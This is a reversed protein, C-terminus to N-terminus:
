LVCLDNPNRYRYQTPHTQSKSGMYDKTTSCLDDRGYVMAPHIHVVDFTPKEHQIWAEARNLAAVKSAAYAVMPNPYPPPTGALRSDPGFVDDVTEVFGAAIPLLAIVSSTVVVRKVSEVKQASEFVGITGRVAPEIMLKELDGDPLAQFPVPSAMHLIYQVDKVAEDFAGPAVFDPVIVFSLQADKGMAQLVPNSRVANAKAESRVAAKVNYGKELAERLVRFGLFGTAGTLLVTEGAM